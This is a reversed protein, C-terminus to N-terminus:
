QKDDQNRTACGWFMEILHTRNLQDLGGLGPIALRQRCVFGALRLNGDHYDRDRWPIRKRHVRMRDDIRTNKEFALERNSRLTALRQVQLRIIRDHLNHISPMISLILPMLRCLDKHEISSYHALRDGDVFWLVFLSVVLQICAVAFLRVQYAGNYGSHYGLAIHNLENTSYKKNSQM